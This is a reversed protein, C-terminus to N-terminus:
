LVRGPKLKFSKPEDLNIEDELSNNVANTIKQKNVQRPIARSNRLARLARESLGTAAALDALRMQKLIPLVDTVWPDRGFDAYETWISEPDHELGAKVEELKNSEKGVHVLRSPSVMRRQLPGRTARGCPEGDPGASKAEPHYYFEELVDRYTKVRAIGVGGTPDTASIRYREGTSRDVWPLREWKGPDTEFPAVLQFCGPDVGEPHGFGRVHAAVMFNFPKIQDAYSGGENIRKIPRLLEPSSISLRSLAPRDLWNPDGMQFGLAERVIREWVGKMWVRDESRPDAPNMLHGLGHESYKVIEPEGNEKLVCLAYRKASIAHCWVQRRCGSDDKNVEELKLVSGPIATRDYPNLIAFRNIIEDVQQWSLARIAEHRKRKLDGGPCPILGGAETAVIAMSDTDCMAYTGGLDTVSRELLALMLRAGSAIFAAIPPFCYRGPEEPDTVTAAFPDPDIGHVRVRARKGSPSEKRIMEAFVGYSTSNAFVKLTGSVQEREPLEKPLTKRLEIAKLFLDDTLPDVRSEGRLKVPQLGPFREASPVFCVAELVTPPKGSLLTSAVCDALTYWTPEGTALVNLGIQWADTQGYRARIPLVDGGPQIRVLVPLERWFAPDFCHELDITALLERVEETADVLDIQEATLLANNGMLGNVTPYMSLFDLYVVPVPCRRIHCEARGGYYAVMAHGLVDPPFDPQRELIPNIGMARLYAKGISAPSFAKTPSLAIPHRAFEALLKELLEATALVDRRAYDIYEPTIRGHEEVALKGHEVGFATCASALSHGENTLAFALTKLDLFHGPFVYSPDAKGDLSGEPILDVDDPQHRKTFGILARKSDISKVTIRPRYTNEHWVGNKQYEWLPLSFGGGYLAGRATGWGVALRSLDFPLNFGVVLGRQKYAVPWFVNNLFDRRSLVRLPEDSGTAAHHTRAYERLIALSAETLDDGHVCGEDITAGREIVRYVGFTLRQTADVTTETDFVLVREPRRWAAPARRARPTAAPTYARVAVPLADM